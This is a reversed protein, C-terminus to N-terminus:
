ICICLAWELCYICYIYYVVWFWLGSIIWWHWIVLSSTIGCYTDVQLYGLVLELIGLETGLDYWNAKFLGLGM